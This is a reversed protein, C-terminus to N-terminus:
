LLRRKELYDEVEGLYLIIESLDDQNISYGDENIETFRKRPVPVMDGKNAKNAMRHILDSVIYFILPVLLCITKWSFEGKEKYAMAGLYYMTYPCAVEILVYINYLNDVIFGGFDSLMDIMSSCIDKM